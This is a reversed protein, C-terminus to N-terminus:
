LNEANGTNVWHNVNNLSRGNKNTKTYNGKFYRQHM